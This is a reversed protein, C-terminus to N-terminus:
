CAFLGVLAQEIDAILYDPDELGVYFRYFNHPLPPNGKGEINYLACTPFILSEHGGWSVAFTFKKLLHFFQESVEISPFNFLVSFLGGTGSMQSHALEKQTNNSEFPHYIKVVEPRQRLYNLVKIATNNTREMRLELTRLGRIVLNADHPSLIAGITMYELKFIKQIWEKSACIVGLVVDSHGNLYKTGSHIVIDIGFVAPNQFIPSAFSNDIITTINNAKALDACAKLDQMEFTLSNPSELYMVTTNPQIARRINEIDTGDVYTTSIGFKTLFKNFLVQTWSYPSQVCVVHDGQKVCALVSLAVAASGSSVVLADETKELAAIKKRLIHNTPNNGRTYVNNNLEDVVRKRFDQITPFVFNSSQIVPPSVAQYYNEREEGLHFLIESIDM